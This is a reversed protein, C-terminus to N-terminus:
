TYLKILITAVMAIGLLIYMKQVNSALNVVRM